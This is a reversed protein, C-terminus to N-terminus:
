NRREYHRLKAALFQVQADPSHGEEPDLLDHYAARLNIEEFFEDQRWGGGIGARRTPHGQQPAPAIPNILVPETQVKLGSRAVLVTQNRERYLAADRDHVISLYRLYHSTVELVFAQRDAPLRRFEESRALAPNSAIRHLWRR